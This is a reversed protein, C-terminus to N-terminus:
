PKFYKPKNPMSKNISHGLNKMMNIFIQFIICFYIKEIYNIEIVNRHKKKIFQSQIKDNNVILMHM